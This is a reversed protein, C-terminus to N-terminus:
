ESWRSYANLTKASEQQQYVILKMEPLLIDFGKREWTTFM